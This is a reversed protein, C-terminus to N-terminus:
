WNPQWILAEEMEAKWMRWLCSENRYNREDRNGFTTLHAMDMSQYIEHKAHDYNQGPKGLKSSSEYINRFVYENQDEKRGVLRVSRGVPGTYVGPTLPTDERWQPGMFRNFGQNVAGPGTIWVIPLDGVDALNTLGSLIVQLIIYMVPHRPSAAMFWQSPTGLTEIVFFADVQPTITSANFKNPSSDMDAYIGGYEWLVLVRWIDAKAAGGYLLCKIVYKLQPFEPWDRYLLKDMADDDHFFLSHGELRWTDINEALEPHMCRSKSTLHVIRPIKRDQFALQPDVLTDHVPILGEKCEVVKQSGALVQLPVVHRTQVISKETGPGGRHSSTERDSIRGKLTCETEALLNTLSWAVLAFTLLVFTRRFNVM